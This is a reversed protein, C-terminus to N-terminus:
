GKRSTLWALIYMVAALWYLFSFGQAMANYELFGGLMAGMLNASLAAQVSASKELEASFAFGSFFLPLTLLLTVAVAGGGPLSATISEQNLLLGLCLAGLLLPYTIWSSPPGARMVLANALFALLLIAAIVVSIVIWTSGWTLALETIGKTEVLMFGAGLFFCPWSFGAGSPALIRVTMLSLIILIVLMMIYSRPWVKHSMYFFPWDDTSVDAKLEPDAYISTVDTLTGPVAMHDIGPGTVFAPGLDQDIQFVRPSQGDFAEELMLYLKRGMEPSLLSFTLCLIGDEKLRDRAQRFGEVTYVFSDLRVGGRSSLLTHSDLLGYVILDYRSDGQRFYSRADDLHATVRESAYPQEPHVRRGIELIAPDIEVADVHGAGHRLAGAVDNGTGSGVVLVEAPNKKFHYPLAYHDAWLEEIEGRRQTTDSLDLMRQYYVHNVNIVLPEGASLNLSLIQYPSYIEIRHPLFHLDVTSLLLLIFFVAGGTPVLAQSARVFLLLVVSGVLLWILPPTWMWSLVAFVLIGGLSGALNWSYARLPQMRGMMRSALQGLPMFTLATLLFTFGLFCFVFTLNSLSSVHRFGLGMQEEVPNQLFRSFMRFRFANLLLLQGALLWVTVPTTLLRDRGRAYGLGLGLFCALLSLNKFYAFFQFYSAHIRIVALELFLGLGAAAAIWLGLRAKTLRDAAVTHDELLAILRRRLGPGRAQRYLGWFAIPSLGMLWALVPSANERAALSLGVYGLCLGCWIVFLLIQM